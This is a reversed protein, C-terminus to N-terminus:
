GDWPHPSGGCGSRFLDLGAGAGPAPRTRASQARGSRIGGARESRGCAATALAAFASPPQARDGAARPGEAREPGGAPHRRDDVRADRVPPAPLAPRAARPGPAPDRVRTGGGPRRAAGRGDPGPATRAGGLAVAPLPGSRAVAEAPVAVATLRDGACRWRHARDAGRKRLARVAAAAPHKERGRTGRRGPGPVAPPYVMGHVTADNVTPVHRAPGQFM